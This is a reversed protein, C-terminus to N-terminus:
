RDGGCPSRSGCCISAKGRLVSPPAGMTTSRAGACCVRNVTDSAGDGSDVRAHMEALGIRPAPTVAVRYDTGSSEQARPRWSAQRRVTRSGDGFSKLTQSAPGWSAEGRRAACAGTPPPPASQPDEGAGSGDDDLAGQRRAPRVIRRRRRDRRDLAMLFRRPVERLM